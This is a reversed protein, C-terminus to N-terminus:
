LAAKIEEFVKELREIEYQANKNERANLEMEKLLEEAEKMALNACSGKLYHAAKSIAINDNIEIAKRLTNLGDDLTDFFDNLLMDVTEEDLELQKMTMSKNYKVSIIEVKNPPESLIVSTEIYRHITKVLEKFVIPKSLYDDMGAALYIEKDGKIANATLAIIPINSKNLVKIKKVATIGDMVPMNVDMFILDYENMQYLELAEQGNNAIECELGLRNLLIEILKQNNINDEAVLIKGKFTQKLYEEESVQQQIQCATAVVNFVKTSYIPTDLYYNILPKLKPNNAVLDINGIFVVPCNFHQKIENLKEVTNEEGLFFLVDIKNIPQSYNLDIVNGFESLYNILNIKIKERDNDLDLVVFQFNTKLIQLNTNEQNKAIPMELNFHFCSGSGEDSDLEIKSGMMKIIKLSISLGLGTGGYKKSISGDAQTFPDFINKQQEKSIGIGSDTVSFKLTINHQSIDLIEVNFCVCGNKPTFKIANSLLNSFVQQLRVFDGMLFIPLRPNTSYIFRVQKEKAKVSFLEVMQELSERINFPESIIEFKGSEVKSIDLIDNIIDLLSKASRSIINAHEQEETPLQAYCLLDSFGIIANLPTRIDHSMNALFQSKAINAQEAELALQKASDKAIRLQKNTRQIQRSLIYGLIVVISLVSFTVFIELKLYFSKKSQIDKEIEFMSQKSEYLLRSTNERMRIFHSPMQKFFIEIKLRRTKNEEHNQEEFIHQKLKIIGIMDDLKKQLEVLKPKLDIGEFVYKSDSQKYLTEEIVESLEVLNLEIRNKLIGGNELINIAENILAIEKLIDQKIQLAADERFLTAIKYFKSEIDSIKKLTYEGIKYRSQENKIRSDLQEVIGNFVFYIMILASYGVVFVFLLALLNRFVTDKLLM